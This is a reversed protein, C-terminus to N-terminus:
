PAGGDDRQRGHGGHGGHLFHMFPCALLFLYPLAGLVHASHEEWLFFVAILLFGALALAWRWASGPTSRPMGDDHGAHAHDHAPM